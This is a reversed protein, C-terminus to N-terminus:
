SRSKLQRVIQLPESPDIGVADACKLRYGILAVQGPTSTVAVSARHSRELMASARKKLLRSKVQKVSDATSGTFRRYTKLNDGVRTNRALDLHTVGVTM